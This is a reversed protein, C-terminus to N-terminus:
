GTVETLALRCVWYVANTADGTATFVLRGNTADATAVIDWGAADEHIVTKTPTGVFATTAAGSDRKIAGEYKYHANQGDTDKNRAIVTATFAWTTNDPINLPDSAAGNLDMARATSFGGGTQIRLVLDSIQADGRAAFYGAAHSRQGRLYASSRIGTAMAGTATARLFEGLAIAYNATAQASSGGAISQAGSAICDLGGVVVAGTGSASNTGGGSVVARSGSAVNLQGGGM